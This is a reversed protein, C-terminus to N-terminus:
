YEEYEEQLIKQVIDYSFGARAFSGLTRKYIKPDNDKPAKSYPGLKKRKAFTLAAQYESNQNNTQLSIEHDIKELTELVLNKELGKQSTKSLLLQRSTGRQRLSRVVGLAYQHDNLYGLEILKETTEQLIQDAENKSPAGHHDISRKIKRQMVSQFHKISAPYRKLYYIGANYLYTETIKRPKKQKPKSTKRDMANM